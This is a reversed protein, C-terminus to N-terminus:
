EMGDSTTIQFGLKRYHDLVGGAELLLPDFEVLAVTQGKQEFAKDLSAIYTAAQRVEFSQMGTSPLDGMLCLQVSNSRKLANPLDGRAWAAAAALREAPMTKAEAQDLVQALCTQQLAEPPEVINPQIDFLWDFDAWPETGPPYAYPDVLIPKWLAPVYVLEIPKRANQALSQARTTVPNGLLKNRPWNWLDLWVALEWTKANKMATLGEGLMFPMAASVRQMLMPPLRVNPPDKFTRAPDGRGLTREWILNTLRNQKLAEGPATGIAYSFPAGAPLALHDKGAFPGSSPPKITIWIGQTWGPTPENLPAGLIPSILRDVDGLRRRLAADDWKTDMPMGDPMGMIWLVSGGGDSVKWWLPGASAPSAALLSLLLALLALLNGGRKPLTARLAPHPNGVLRAEKLRAAALPKHPEGVRAAEGGDRGMLPPFTM